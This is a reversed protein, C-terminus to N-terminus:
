RLPDIDGDVQLSARNLLLREPQFTMKRCSRRTM